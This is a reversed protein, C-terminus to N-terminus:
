SPPFALALFHSFLCLSFPLSSVAWLELTFDSVDKSVITNKTRKDHSSTRSKTMGTTSDAILTSTDVVERDMTTPEIVAGGTVATTARDTSSAPLAAQRARELADCKDELEACRARLEDIMSSATEDAPTPPPPEPSALQRGPLLNAHLRTVTAGM